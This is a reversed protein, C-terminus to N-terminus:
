INWPNRAPQRWEPAHGAHIRKIIRGVVESNFNEEASVPWIMSHLFSREEDKSFGILDWSKCRTDEPKMDDNKVIKLVLGDPPIV